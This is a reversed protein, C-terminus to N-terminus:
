SLLSFCHTSKSGDENNRMCDYNRLTKRFLTRLILFLYLWYSYTKCEKIPVAILKICKLAPIGSIHTMRFDPDSTYSFPCILRGAEYWPWSLIGLLIIYCIGFYWATKVKIM